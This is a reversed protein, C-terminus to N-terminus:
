ELTINGRTVVKQWKANEQKMLARYDASTSTQVDAGQKSFSQKLEPDQLAAVIANRLKTAVEPPTAVPAIIGYNTDMLVNPLGAEATTPVDPLQTARQKGAIALVRMGGTSVHPLVPTLDVMTMQVENSLVATVAPAAGKYPVHTLRIGAEQKFLEAGIHPTTGAGASSYNLADPKAKAAAVLDKLSAYPSKGNVAIVAPIRAVLTLYQIDDLSYPVKMLTQMGALPGPAALAITYGDGAARVMTDVGITGGAGPKNEVVVAQGLSPGIKQAILRAIVDTPGGAAYPVILRIPRSPWSDAAYATHLPLAITVVAAAVATATFRLPTM